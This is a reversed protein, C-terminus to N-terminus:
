SSHPYALAQRDNFRVKLQQSHHESGQSRTPMECILHQAGAEHEVRLHYDSVAGRFRTQEVQALVGDDTNVSLQQPRILVQVAQGSRAEDASTEADVAAAVYDVPLEGLATQAHRADSMIGDIFVGRGIFEAIVRDAPRRYIEAALAWQRLRGDRMVGIRDAITFAEQQDHTVLIAATQEAKLIARIQVALQERLETDISSFPEDLLLLAPKPALARALAIRQQQGGSLQHPYANAYQSLNVLELLQTVRAERQAKSAFEGQKAKNQELGFAINAAVTLHPFLAFDQFVMGVQRQEPAQWCQPGAVTEGAIDIHGSHAQEFGAIARLLSTKGCGSPGLLCGIEGSELAFCVDNFVHLDGYSLGLQQVNLPQNM